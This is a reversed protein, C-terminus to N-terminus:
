LAGDAAALAEPVGNVPFHRDKLSRADFARIRHKAPDSVFARPRTLELAPRPSSAGVAAPLSMADPAIRLLADYRRGQGYSAVM